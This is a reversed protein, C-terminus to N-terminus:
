WPPGDSSTTRAAAQEGNGTGQGALLPVDPTISVCARGPPADRTGIFGGGGRERESM